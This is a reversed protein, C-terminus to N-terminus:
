IIRAYHEVRKEDLVSVEVRLSLNLTSSVLLKSPVFSQTLENGRRYKRLYLLERTSTLTEIKDEVLSTNLRVYM